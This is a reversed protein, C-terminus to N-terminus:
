VEDLEIAKSKIEEKELIKFLEGHNTIHIAKSEINIIGKDKFDKLSRGLSERTAGILNALDFRTLRIGGIPGDYKQYREEIILLFVALRVNQTKQALIGITNALVGFEHALNRVLNEKLVPFDALLNLFNEKSIFNASTDEIAECADQYREESLLAHYGLLDGNTYIYFIQEQEDIVTKFKKILGQEILFVGTPIGDEYFLKSGKKFRIPEFLSRVHTEEEKTLGNFLFDSKFDFQKKLEDLKLQYKM